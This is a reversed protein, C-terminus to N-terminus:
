RTRGQSGPSPSAVNTTPAPSPLYPSSRYLDLPHQDTLVVEFGLSQLRATADRVLVDPAFASTDAPMCLGTGPDLRWRGDEHLLVRVARATLADAIPRGDASRGIVVRQAQKFRTSSAVRVAAIRYAPLLRRRVAAAARGPEGRVAVARPRPISGYEFVGAPLLAGVLFQGSRRPRQVVFLQLGHAHTLVARAHQHDGDQHLARWLVGDEMDWQRHDTHSRQHPTPLVSHSWASGLRPALEATFTELSTVAATTRRLEDQEFSAQSSGHTM